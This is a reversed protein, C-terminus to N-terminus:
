LSNREKETTSCEKLLGRLKIVDELTTRQCNINGSATEETDEGKSIQHIEYLKAKLKENEKFLKNNEENLEQIEEFYIQPYRSIISPVEDMIELIDRCLKESYWFYKSLKRKAEAKSVYEAM